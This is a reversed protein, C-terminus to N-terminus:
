LGAESFMKHIAEKESPRPADANIIEGKPGLFIFRPISNIQYEKFFTNDSGAFLQIGGMGKSKIMNVWSQHKEPKDTSISVFAINKGHYEKELDKLAPIQGLCPRCWTAWVDIYVYKGKLDDLSTKGGKFNEFNRFKPSPKGKGLTAQLAHNKAYRSQLSNIYGELGQQERKVVATDINGEQLLATMKGKFSNIKKHFAASDLAYLESLGSSFSRVEKLRTVLYNNTENGRGEFHLTNNLDKLDGKMKLEDGINLYTTIRAERGIMISYFDPKKIHLTDSFNGNADINIKKHYTRSNISLVSDKAAVNDFHGEFVVHDKLEKKCSALALTLSLLLLLHKM